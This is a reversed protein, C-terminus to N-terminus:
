TIVEELTGREYEHASSRNLMPRFDNDPDLDISSGPKVDWDRVAIMFQRIATKSNSALEDPVIKLEDGPIHCWGLLQGIEDWSTYVNASRYKLNLRSDGTELFTVKDNNPLPVPDPVLCDEKKIPWKGPLESLIGYKIKESTPKNIIETTKKRHANKTGIDFLERIKAVMGDASTMAHDSVRTEDENLTILYGTDLKQVIITKKMM